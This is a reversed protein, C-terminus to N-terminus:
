PWPWTAVLARPRGALDPEVRVNRFGAAGAARTAAPAQHPAIELVLHGGTALWRGADTVVRAISELGTRGAVLARPPEYHRVAADLGSWESEAVYPPNSVVLALTGALTAPLADFWDGEGLHVRAGASPDREALAALNGAAVTLAEPSADTAWVELDGPGEAALSLAIAGSGTGLDVAVRGAGRGTRVGDVLELAIGAVVETEPRPILVRRDVALELTRFAWSGLVYQLPEGASRRAVLVDVRRRMDDPVPDALHAALAPADIGAVHEVVWRAETDSGLRAATEAWFERLTPGVASPATSM